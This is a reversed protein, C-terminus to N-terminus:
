ASIYSLAVLYQGLTNMSEPNKCKPVLAVITSNFALLLKKHQFFYLIAEIVDGGVILWSAKFFQATFGDLGPAKDGDIGFM